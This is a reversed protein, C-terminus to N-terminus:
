PHPPHLPLHLLHLAHPLWPHQLSPSLLMLRYADLTHLHIRPLSLNEVQGARGTGHSGGASPSATM